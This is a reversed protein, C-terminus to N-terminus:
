FTNLLRYDTAVRDIRWDARVKLAYDAIESMFGEWKLHAVGFYRDM